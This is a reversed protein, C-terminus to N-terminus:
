GLGHFNRGRIRVVRGLESYSVASDLREAGSRDHVAAVKALIAQPRIGDERYRM